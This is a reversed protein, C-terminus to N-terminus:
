QASIETWHRQCHSALIIKSMRASIVDSHLCLKCWTLCFRLSGYMKQCLPRSNHLPELRREGTADPKEPMCMGTQLMFWLIVCIGGRSLTDWSTGWISGNRKMLIFRQSESWATETQSTYSWAHKHIDAYIHMPWQINHRHMSPACTYTHQVHGQIYLPWLLCPAVLPDKVSDLALSVALIDWHDEQRQGWLELTLPVVWKKIHTSPNSSLDKKQVIPVRLSLAM